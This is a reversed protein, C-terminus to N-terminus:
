DKVTYKLSGYAKGVGRRTSVPHRLTTNIGWSFIVLTKQEMYTVPRPPAVDPPQHNFHQKCFAVTEGGCVAAANYVQPGLSRVPVM